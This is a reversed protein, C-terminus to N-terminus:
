VTPFLRTKIDQLKTLRGELYELYEQAEKLNTEAKSVSFDNDDMQNLIDQANFPDNEEVVSLNRAAQAVASALAVEAESVKITQAAVQHQASLLAKDMSFSANTVAMEVQDAERQEKSQTIRERYTMSSTSTSSVSNRVASIKKAM